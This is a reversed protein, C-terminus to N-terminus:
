EEEEESKQNKTCQWRFYLPTRLGKHAKQEYRTQVWNEPREIHAEKQDYLPICLPFDRMLNWVWEQYQPDDTTIHVYASIGSRLTKLCTRVFSEQILRRGTHKKKPWPDPYHIYICDWINEGMADFISRADFPLLRVNSLKHEAVKEIIKAYGNIFPEIGLYAVEPNLMAKHILHEGSGCGIEVEYHGYSFSTDPAFVSSSFCAGLTERSFVDHIDITLADYYEHWLNKLKFGLARSQRRGYLRYESVCLKNQKDM